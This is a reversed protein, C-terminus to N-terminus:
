RKWGNTAHTIRRDLSEVRDLEVRVANGWLTQPPLGPIEVLSGTPALYIIEIRDRPGVASIYLEDYAAPAVASYPTRDPRGDGDLDAYVTEISGDANGIPIAVGNRKVLVRSFQPNRHTHWSVGSALGFVQLYPGVVEFTTAAYAGPTPIVRYPAGGVMMTSPPLGAPPRHYAQPEAPQAKGDKAKRDRLTRLRAKIQQRATGAAPLEPQKADPVAQQSALKAKTAELEQRLRDVEAKLGSEGAKLRAELIKVNQDQICLLQKLRASSDTGAYRAECFAVAQKAEKSEEAHLTAPVFLFLAAAIAMEFKM